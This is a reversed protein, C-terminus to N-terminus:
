SKHLIVAINLGENIEQMKLAKGKVKNEKKITFATKKINGKKEKGREKNQFIADRKKRVGVKCNM